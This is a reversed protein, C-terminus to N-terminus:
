KILENVKELITNDDGFAERFRKPNLALSPGLLKEAMQRTKFRTNWVGRHHWECCPVTAADGIRHSGSLLHHM